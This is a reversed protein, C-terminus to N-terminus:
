LYLTKLFLHHFFFSFFLFIFFFSVFGRAREAWGHGLGLGKTFATNLDGQWRKGIQSWGTQLTLGLECMKISVGDTTPYIDSHRKDEFLQLTAGDGDRATKRSRGRWAQSM